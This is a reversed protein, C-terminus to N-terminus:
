TLSATFVKEDVKKLLSFCEVLHHQYLCEAVEETNPWEEISFQNRRQPKKTPPTILGVSQPNHELVTTIATSVKKPCIKISQQMFVEIIFWSLHVEVLTNANLVHQAHM